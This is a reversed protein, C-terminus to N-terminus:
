NKFKTIYHLAQNARDKQDWKAAERYVQSVLNWIAIERDYPTLALLFYKNV